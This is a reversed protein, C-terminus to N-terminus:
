MTPMDTSGAATDMVHERSSSGSVSSMSGAPPGQTISTVLLTPGPQDAAIAVYRSGNCKYMLSVAPQSM